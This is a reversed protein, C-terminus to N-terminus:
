LGIAKLKYLLRGEDPLPLNFCEMVYVMLDVISESRVQDVMEGLTKKKAGSPPSDIEVLLIGTWIAFVLLMFREIANRSRLQYDKFGL